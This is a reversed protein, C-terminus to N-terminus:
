CLSRLLQFVQRRQLQLVTTVGAIARGTGEMLIKLWSFEKHENVGSRNGDGAVAKWGRLAKEVTGLPTM